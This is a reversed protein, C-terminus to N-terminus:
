RRRSSLNYSDRGIRYGSKKSKRHLYAHIQRLDYPNVGNAEGAIGRVKITNLDFPCLKDDLTKNDAM